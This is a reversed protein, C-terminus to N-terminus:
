SDKREAVAMLKKNGPITPGRAIKLEICARALERAGDTDCYELKEGSAKVNILFNCVHVASKDHVRQAAM